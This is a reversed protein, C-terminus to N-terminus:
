NANGELRSITKKAAELRIKKNKEILKHIIRKELYHHTPVLLGAICVMILLMLLPSHHTLNGIFPHILLNIFEFVFLLALIGFIEITRTSTIIKRSLVLFILLGSFLGIAIAAYQLNLKRENQEKEKQLLIEQQRAAENFNFAEVQRTKENNSLSDKARISLKQYFFASDYQNKAEFVESLISSAPLIGKTNSSLQAAALGKRAISLASDLQGEKMYLGALGNLALSAPKLDNDRISIELSRNFYSKAVNAEGLKSYVTGLVYFIVDLEFDNKLQRNLQFAKQEFYLASDLNNLDAYTAGLQMSAIMQNNVDAISEAISHCLKYYNIALDVRGINKNVNGLHIYSNAVWSSDNLQEFKRLGILLNKIAMGYNVKNNYARGMRTYGMAQAWENNTKKGLDVLQQSYFISSDPNREWYYFGLERLANIQAIESNTHTVLKKLSDINITQAHCIFSCLILPLIIKRM